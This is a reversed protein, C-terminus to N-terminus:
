DGILARLGPLEDLPDASGLYALTAGGGTSIFGIKKELGFAHVAASCDGGGVVTYGTSNAIAQLITETGAQYQPYEYMGMTGNTLITGSDELEGKFKEISTPGIDVCQTNSPIQDILYTAPTSGLPGQITAFDDPLILAVHQEAAQTIIEHATQVTQSALEVGGVEHGMARLFPLALAGGIVIKTPRQTPEVTLLRLILPVKDDLKAGGLVLIFPQTPHQKLRDLAAMEQEVCLGICRASPAFQRPVLAISTDPRHITGFADNVYVEALSALQQAFSPDDSKEGPFLRLNELLIVSASSQALLCRAHQISSAYDITIGQQAFWPILHKTSLAEFEPDGPHLNTDKPSGLHTALVIKAQRSLLYHLTPLASQLRFDDIILNNKIIVNLDSRLFICKKDIKCTKLTLLPM